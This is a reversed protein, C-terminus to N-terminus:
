KENIEGSFVNEKPVYFSLKAQVARKGDVDIWCEFSGMEEDMYQTAGYVDLVDGVKFAACNLELRRTGLLFGIRPKDGYGRAKFGNWVAVTQAMYEIGVYSPVAGNDCFPSHPQIMTQCHIFSERYSMVRDVLAMPADHVLYESINCDPLPRKKLIISVNSGGFAFSNSMLAYAGKIPYACDGPKSLRIPPLTSDPMGDWKHPILPIKGNDEHSLALWLFAAEIAGAAGLAHGTLAKSSSCPLDAGFIRNISISEMSDNLVTGTGHLNIYCIEEPNLNAEKLAEMIADQAGFGEPEPCCIHYADSSEGCGSLEVYGFSGEKAALFVAAGEGITIGDRNKSFPNCRSKSILELSDFGNLTLDCLTDVGGVIVADCIGARILRKASCFAKGSSSCATSITYSPGDVKLYRSTFLSPSSIESQAYHYGELENKNLHRSRFAREEEWMGSTSTAMVVGVRSAGYKVIAQDVAEKIEDLVVMLLRNNRSNLASFEHPLEPLEFPIKGVPVNKQNLLAWEPMSPDDNTEFLAKAVEHKGRGLACAIGLASLYVSM